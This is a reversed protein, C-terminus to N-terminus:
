GYGDDRAEPRDDLLATLKEMRKIRRTMVRLFPRTTLVRIDGTSQRKVCEPRRVYDYQTAEYVIAYQDALWLMVQTYELFQPQTLLVYNRGSHENLFETHSAYDVHTKATLFGYLRGTYPCLRKLTSISATTNVAKIHAIDDFRHAVYAWALQELILRSVAHGEYRHGLRYLLHACFFSLELRYLVLSAGFVGLTTEPRGRFKRRIRSVYSAAALYTDVYERRLENGVALHQPPPYRRRAYDLSGLRRLSAQASAHVCEVFGPWQSDRSVLAGEGILGIFEFDELTARLPDDLAAFGRPRSGFTNHRRRRM